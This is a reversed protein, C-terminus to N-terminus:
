IGAAYRFPCAEFHAHKWGCAANGSCSIMRASVRIHDPHSEDGFTEIVHDLRIRVRSGLLKCAFPITNTRQEM